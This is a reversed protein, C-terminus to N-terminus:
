ISGRSMSDVVYQDGNPADYRWYSGLYNVLKNRFDVFFEDISNWCDDEELENLDLDNDALYEAALLCLSGNQLLLLHDGSGIQALVTCRSLDEYISENSYGSIVREAEHVRELFRRKREEAQQLPFFDILSCGREDLPCFLEFGNFNKYINRLGENEINELLDDSAGENIIHFARLDIKDKLISFGADYCHLVSYSAIDKIIEISMGGGKGRRANLFRHIVWKLSEEKM